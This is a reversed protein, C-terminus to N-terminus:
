RSLFFLETAREVGWGYQIHLTSIVNHVWAIGKLCGDRVREIPSFWRIIDHIDEKTSGSARLIMCLSLLILRQFSARARHLAAGTSSEESSKSFNKALLMVTSLQINDSMPTQGHGTDTLIISHSSVFSRVTAAYQAAANLGVRGQKVRWSMDEGSPLQSIIWELIRPERAGRQVMDYM